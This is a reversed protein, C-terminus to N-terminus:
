HKKIEFITGLIIMNLSLAGLFVLEGKNLRHTGPMRFHLHIFRGQKKAGTPIVEIQEMNPNQATQIDHIIEQLHLQEM